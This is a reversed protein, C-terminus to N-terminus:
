ATPQVGRLADFITTQRERLVGENLAPLPSPRKESETAKQREAPRWLSSQTDTRAHAARLREAETPNFWLEVAYGVRRRHRRSARKEAGTMPRLGAAYLEDDDM